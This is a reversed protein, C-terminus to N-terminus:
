VINNSVQEEAQCENSPDFGMSRALCIFFRSGVIKKHEKSLRELLKKKINPIGAMSQPLFTGPESLILHTAAALANEFNRDLQLEFMRKDYKEKELELASKQTEKKVFPVLDKVSNVINYRNPQSQLWEPLKNLNAVSIACINAICMSTFRKNNMKLFAFGREADVNTTPLYENDFANPRNTTVITDKALKKQYGVIASKFTKIFSSSDKVKTWHGTFIKIAKKTSEKTGEVESSLELLVNVLNTNANLCRSSDTMAEKIVKKAHGQTRKPKSMGSWFPKVLCTFATVMFGLEILILQKNAKLTKLASVARKNQPNQQLTLEVENTYLMFERSNQYHITWRNGLDTRFGCKEKRGINDILAQRLCQPRYGSMLQSGFLMKLDALFNKTPKSLPQCLQSELHM